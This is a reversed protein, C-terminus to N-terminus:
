NTSVVVFLRLADQELAAMAAEGAPLEWALHRRALGLKAALAAADPAPALLLRELARNFAVVADGFADEDQTHELAAVVAEARGLTALARTWAGAPAGLPPPAAPAAAAFTFCLNPWPAAVGCLAPSACAVGLLARRSLKLQADAM